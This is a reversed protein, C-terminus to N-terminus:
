GQSALMKAYTETNEKIEKDSAKKGASIFGTITGSEDRIPLIEIDVWYFLGDKRLNKILGKWIQGGKLTASIKDLVTKPMMPHKIISYQQGLLESSEYGSVMSFMKNSYTIVGNLDTQSVITTGEYIYEEDKPVIKDM